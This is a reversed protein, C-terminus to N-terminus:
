RSIKNRAQITEEARGRDRDEDTVQKEYQKWQDNWDAEWFM